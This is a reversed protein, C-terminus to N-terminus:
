ENLHQVWFFFFADAPKPLSLDVELLLDELDILDKVFCSL